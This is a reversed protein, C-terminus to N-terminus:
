EIPTLDEDDPLERDLLNSAANIRRLADRREIPVATTLAVWADALEKLARERHHRVLQSAAAWHTNVRAANEVLEGLIVRMEGDYRGIYEAASLRREYCGPLRM